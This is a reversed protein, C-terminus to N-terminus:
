IRHRATRIHGGIRHRFRSEKGLRMLYRKGSFKKGRIDELMKRKEGYNVKMLLYKRM